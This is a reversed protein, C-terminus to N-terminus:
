IGLLDIGTLITENPKKEISFIKIGQIGSIGIIKKSEINFNESVKTQFNKGKTSFSYKARRNSLVAIIRDRCNATSELVHHIIKKKDIGHLFIAIPAD